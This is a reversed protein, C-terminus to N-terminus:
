KIPKDTDPPDSETRGQYEEKEQVPSKSIEKDSSSQQSGAPPMSEDREDPLASRTNVNGTIEVQRELIESGPEMVPPKDESWENQEPQGTAIVPDSKQSDPTSQQASIDIFAFLLIFLAIIKIKIM